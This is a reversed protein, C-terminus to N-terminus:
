RRSGGEKARLLQSDCQSIPQGYHPEYESDYFMLVSSSLPAGARAPAAAVLLLLAAAALARM